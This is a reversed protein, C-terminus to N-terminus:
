RNSSQQAKAQASETRYAKRDANGLGEKELRDAQPAAAAAVEQVATNSYTEAM